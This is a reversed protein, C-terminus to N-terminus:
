QTRLGAFRLTQLGVRVFSAGAAASEFSSLRLVSLALLADGDVHSEVTLRGAAQLSGATFGADALETRTTEDFAFEGDDPVVCSFVTTGDGGILLAVAGDDGSGQWAFVSDADISTPDFGAELLFPATDAFNADAFAPFTDGPVDLLLGESPLPSGSLSESDLDYSGLAVATLTAFLGDGDGVSLATGASVPTGVTDPIPTPDGGEDATTVLCTGTAAAFPDGPSVDTLPTERAVFTGSGGLVRAGDQGTESLLVFGVHRLGVDFSRAVPDAAETDAGGPQSATITCTGVLGDLTVISGSVSCVGAAAFRVPLGSSASASVEFPADSTFRDGLEAFTITQSAPPV